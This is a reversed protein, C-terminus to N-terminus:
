RTQVDLEKKVQLSRETKRAIGFIAKDKRLEKGEASGTTGTVADDESICPVHCGPFPVHHGMGLGQAAAAEGFGM